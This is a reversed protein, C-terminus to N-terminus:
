SILIVSLAGASGFLVVLERVLSCLPAETSHGCPASQDSHIRQQKREESERRPVEVFLPEAERELAAKKDLWNQTGLLAEELPDLTKNGSPYHGEWIVGNLCNMALKAKEPSDSYMSVTRNDLIWVAVVGSRDLETDLSDLASQSQFVNLFLKKKSEQYKSRRVKPLIDLMQRQIEEHAAPTGTVEVKEGEKDGVINRVNERSKAFCGIIELFEINQPQVFPIIRTTVSLDENIKKKKKEVEALVMDKLKGSANKEGLIWIKAANYGYILVHEANLEQVLDNIIDQIHSFVQDTLSETEFLTCNDCLFDAVITELKRWNQM